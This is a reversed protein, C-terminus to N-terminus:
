QCGAYLIKTRQAVDKYCVVTGKRVMAWLKRTVGKNTGEGVRRKDKSERIMIVCCGNNANLDTMVVSGILTRGDGQSFPDGNGVAVTMCHGSHNGM